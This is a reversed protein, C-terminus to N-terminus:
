RKVAIKTHYERRIAMRVVTAMPEGALVALEKLKKQDSRSIRLNLQINRKEAVAMAAFTYSSPYQRRLGM